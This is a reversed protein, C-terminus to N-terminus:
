FWHSLNIHNKNRAKDLLLYQRRKFDEIEMQTDETGTTSVGEGEMGVMVVNM